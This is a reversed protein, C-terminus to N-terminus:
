TTTREIGEPLRAHQSSLDRVATFLVKHIDILLYPHTETGANLGVPLFRAM